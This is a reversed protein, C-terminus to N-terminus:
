GDRVLLSDACHGASDAPEVDFDERQMTVVVQFGEELLIQYDCRSNEPYLSPYNPSTLEGILTTFVNGSCNVLPSFSFLLILYLTLCLLGQRKRHYKEHISLECQNVTVNVSQLGCAM